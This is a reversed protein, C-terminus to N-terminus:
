CERTNNLLRLAAAADRPLLAFPPTRSRRQAYAAAHRCAAFIM